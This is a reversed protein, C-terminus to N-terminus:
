LPDAQTVQSSEDTENGRLLHVTKQQPVGRAAERFDGLVHLVISQFPVGQRPVHRILILRVGVQAPEDVAHSCSLDTKRPLLVGFDLAM